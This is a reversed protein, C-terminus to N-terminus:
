AAADDRRDAHSGFLRFSEAAKAPSVFAVCFALTAGAKRAAVGVQALRRYYIVPERPCCTTARLTM